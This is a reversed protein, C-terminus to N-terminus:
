TEDSIESITMSSNGSEKMRLFEVDTFNLTDLDADEPIEVLWEEYADTLEFVITAQKM